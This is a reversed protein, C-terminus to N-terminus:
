TNEMVRIHKKIESMLRWLKLRWIIYSGIIFTCIIEPLLTQGFFNVELWVVWFEIPPNYLRVCENFTSWTM